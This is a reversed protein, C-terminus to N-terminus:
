MIDITGISRKTERISFFGSNFFDMDDQNFDSLLIDRGLAKLGFLEKKYTFHDIMRKAALEVDFLDTRLFQLYM